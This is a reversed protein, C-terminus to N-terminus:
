KKERKKIQGLSYFTLTWFIKTLNNLLHIEPAEVHYMEGVAVEDTVNVDITYMTQPFRPSSTWVGGGEVPVSLQQVPFPYNWWLLVLGVTVGLYLWTKLELNLVNKKWDMGSIIVLGPLAFVVNQLIIRFQPFRLSLIWTQGQFAYFSIMWFLEFSAIALGVFGVTLAINESNITDRKERFYKSLGVFLLGYIVAASWHTGLGYYDSYMSIWQTFTIRGLVFKPLNWVFFAVQEATSDAGLLVWCLLPILVVTGLMFKRLKLDDRLINLQFWRWELNVSDITGFPDKLFRQIFSPSSTTIDSM